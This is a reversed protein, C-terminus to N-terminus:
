WKLSSPVPRRISQRIDSGITLRNVATVQAKGTKPYIMLHPVNAAYKQKVEDFDPRRSAATFAQHTSGGHIRIQNELGSLSEGLEGWQRQLRNIEALYKLLLEPDDDVWNNDKVFKDMHATKKVSEVVRYLIKPDFQQTDIVYEYLANGKYWVKHEADKFIRALAVSPIPDFFFSLHDVYPGELGFKVAQKESNSIEEASVGQARRTLLTPHLEKSYHYIFM